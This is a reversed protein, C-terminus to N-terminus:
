HQYNQGYHLWYLDILELDKDNMSAFYMTAIIVCNCCTMHIFAEFRQGSEDDNNKM